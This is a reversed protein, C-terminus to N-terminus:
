PDDDAKEEDDNRGRQMMAAGLEDLDATEKRSVMLQYEELQKERLKELVRVAQQRERYVVLTEELRQRQEDIREDLRLLRVRVGAGFMGSLAVMESPGEGSILGFQEFAEEISRREEELSVLIARERIVAARAEDLQTQRFRLVRELRFRFRKM